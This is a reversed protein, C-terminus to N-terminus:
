PEWCNGVIRVLWRKGMDNIGLNLNKKTSVAGGIVLEVNSGLEECALANRPVLLLCRKPKRRHERMSNLLTKM